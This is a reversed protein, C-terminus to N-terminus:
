KKEAEKNEKAKMLKEYSATDHTHGNLDEFLPKPQEEKKVEKKDSM